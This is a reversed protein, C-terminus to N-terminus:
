TAGMRQPEPGRVHKILAKYPAPEVRMAQHLCRHFLRGRHQSTRRNFRFTYEDVDYDLHEPSVDGQHTGLLWRKLLSAVRHCRPLLNKGVAEDQRVVERIFGVAKLGSYSKLGDTRVVSGAAVM